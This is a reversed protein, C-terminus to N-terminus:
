DLPEVSQPYAVHARGGTPNNWRGRGREIRASADEARHGPTEMRCVCGSILEGGVPQEGNPGAWLNSAYKALSADAAPDREFEHHTRAHEGATM